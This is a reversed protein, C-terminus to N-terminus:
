QQHQFKLVSFFTLSLDLVPSFNNNENPSCVSLFFFITVNLDKQVFNVLDSKSLNKPLNNIMLKFPSNMKALFVDVASAIEDEEESGIDFDPLAQVQGALDSCLLFELFEHFFPYSNTNTVMIQM